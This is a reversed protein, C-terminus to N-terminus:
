GSEATHAARLVQLMVGREERCRARQRCTGSGSPTAAAAIPATRRPAREPAEGEVGLGSSAYSM